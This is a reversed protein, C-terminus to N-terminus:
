NHVIYIRNRARFRIALKPDIWNAVEKYKKFLKRTTALPQGKFDYDPTDILGGTDYHKIVQGLVNRAQLAAENFRNADTRIGTLLSEGYFVRDFIHDLPITGDGGIVINYLPRHATDYFIFYMTEKM